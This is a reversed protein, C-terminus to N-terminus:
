LLLPLVMLPHKTSSKCICAQKPLVPLQSPCLPLKLQPPSPPAGQRPHVRAALGGACACGHLVQHALLHLRGPAPWPALLHVAPHDGRVRGAARHFNAAGRHGNDRQVAPYVPLSCM